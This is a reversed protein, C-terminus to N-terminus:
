DRDVNVVLDRGRVQVRVPIAQGQERVHLTLGQGRGPGQGRVRGRVPVAQGQECVPLTLGQDHGPGRGHVRVRVPLPTFM